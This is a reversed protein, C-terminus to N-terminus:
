RTNLYNIPPTKRQKFYIIIGIIFFPISLLQGMNLTMSNEFAEQNEKLFEILFRALPLYIMTMSILIGNRLHKVNSKYYVWVIIFVLFYTIAEYLQAPHRPESTPPYAKLFIFSWPLTSIKGIIESNMLNGLRIFGAALPLIIAARDLIWLFPQKPLINKFKQSSYYLAIIVGLFGGHSALGGKWIQFIEIPNHMYYEWDYFICHALRAGLITGIMVYLIINYIIDPQVGEKKFIKRSIVIGSIFCLLFALSYWRLHFGGMSIANKDVDWIIFELVSLNLSNPMM